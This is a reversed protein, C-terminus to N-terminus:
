LIVLLLVCIHQWSLSPSLFHPNRQIASPTLSLYGPCCYVSSLTWQTSSCPLLTQSMILSLYNTISTNIWVKRDANLSLLVPYSIGAQGLVQLSVRRCPQLVVNLGDLWSLHLSIRHTLCVTISQSHLLPSFGLSTSSFVNFTSIIACGLHSGCCLARWGSLSPSNFPCHVFTVAQLGQTSM